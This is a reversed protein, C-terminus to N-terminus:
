ENLKGGCRKCKLKDLKAQLERSKNVAGAFKKSFYHADEVFSKNEKELGEIRQTLQKEAGVLRHYEQSHKQHKDQLAEVLEEIRKNSKDLQAQLETNTKRLKYIKASLKKIQENKFEINEAEILSM